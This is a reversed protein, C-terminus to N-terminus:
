LYIHQLQDPSLYSVGRNKQYSRMQELCLEPDLKLGQENCFLFDSEDGGRRSLYFDMVPVLSSHLPLCVRQESTQTSVYILQEMLNIQGVTLNLADQFRVGTRILFQQLAWIKVETFPASSEDPWALLQGM